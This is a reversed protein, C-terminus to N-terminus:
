RTGTWGPATYKEQALAAAREEEAPTLGDERLEVSWAAAARSASAAPLGEGGDPLYDRLVRGSEAGIEGSDGAALDATGRASGLMLSGHQLVVRRRRTQASGLVKRGALTLEWPGPEAFCDFGKAPRASDAAAVVPAGAERLAAAFPESLRRQSAAVGGAALRSDTGVIVAYTVCERHLIANGGTLRRVIEIGQRRCESADVAAFEQFYGISLCAPEWDYFRLVPSGGARVSEMLAEDVAMNGSGPGPATVILRWEETGAPDALGTPSWRKM